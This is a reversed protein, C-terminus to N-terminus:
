RSAEELKKFADSDKLKENERAYDITMKGSSDKAKPDAGFHLLATIAAEPNRDIPEPIDRVAEM